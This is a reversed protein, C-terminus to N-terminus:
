RSIDNDFEEIGKASYYWDQQFSRRLIEISEKELYITGIYSPEPSSPPLIKRADLALENGCIARRATAYAEGPPLIRIDIQAGYRRKLEKMREINKKTALMLKLKMGRELIKRHLSLLPEDFSRYGSSLWLLTDETNRKSLELLLGVIWTASYLVSLKGGALVVGYKGFNNRYGESLQLIGREMSKVRELDLKREMEGKKEEWLVEPDAPLFAEGGFEKEGEYASLVQALLGERILAERGNELRKNSVIKDVSERVEEGLRTLAMPRSLVYTIYYIAAEYRYRGMGLGVDFFLEIDRLLIKQSEM